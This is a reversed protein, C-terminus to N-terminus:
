RAPRTQTLMLDTNYVWFWIDLCHFARMRENFMPPQWGFWAVYVPAKQVAKATATDVVGKRNSSVM